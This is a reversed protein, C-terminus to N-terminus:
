LRFAPFRLAIISNQTQLILCSSSIGSNLSFLFTFRYLIRLLLKAHLFLKKKESSLKRNKLKWFKCNREEICRRPTRTIKVLVNIVTALSPPIIWKEREKIPATYWAIIDAVSPLFKTQIEQVAISFVSKYIKTRCWM